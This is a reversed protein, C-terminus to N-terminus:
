AFHYWLALILGGVGGTFLLDGRRATAIGGGAWDVTLGALRRLDPTTQELKSVVFMLLVCGFFVIVSFNLFSMAAVGQLAGLDMGGNKLIDLLFRSAGVVGGCLLTIFAARATAGKWLVGVLFTATIPAGVYAQVSQLYQYVESNLYRIVPIWAISVVVVLGTAWRGVNVLQSESAM